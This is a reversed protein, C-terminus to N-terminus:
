SLNHLHKIAQEFQRIKDIYAVIQANREKLLITSKVKIQARVVKQILFLKSRERVIAYQLENIADNMPM